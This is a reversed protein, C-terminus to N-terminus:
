LNNSKLAKDLSRLLPRLGLVGNENSGLYQELVFKSMGDCGEAINKSRRFSAIKEEINKINKSIDNNPDEKFKSPLAINKLSGEIKACVIVMEECAESKKGSKSKTYISGLDQRFGNLQNIAEDYPGDGLAFGATVMIISLVISMIKMKKM